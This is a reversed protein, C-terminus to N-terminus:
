DFIFADYKEGKKIEIEDLWRKQNLWSSPYPIYRGMDQIWNKSHIQNDVAKLILEIEEKNPKLKEWAKEAKGKAKKNPYAAWFRSFGVWDVSKGRGLEKDPNAFEGVLGILFDEVTKGNIAAYQCIFVWSEEDYLLTREKKM